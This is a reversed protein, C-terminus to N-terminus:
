NSQIIDKIGDFISIDPKWNFERYTNEGSGIVNKLVEKKIREKNLSLGIFLDEFKDWFSIPDGQIYDINSSYIEKFINYIENVNYSKESCANFIDSKYKKTSIIMKELLIIIDKSNVYDRSSNSNNYIIPAKNNKLEKALYSTFPPMKRHIDQHTGYINFFRVIIIDLGYNKSYSECLKEAAFKTMSYVLDPSVIDSEKLIGSNNEYVASTSSFILRKVKKKRAIDLITATGGVNIDYALGPNTQCFALSSLGALHIIIDHEHIIETMKNIDRIDACVFKDFPKGNEILNDLYGFMMNDILIVDYGKKKLYFGLQSGIFGAGGTIVIRM